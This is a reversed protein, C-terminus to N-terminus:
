TGNKKSFAFKKEEGKILRRINEHHTIILLVSITVSFIIYQLSRDPFVFATFFIFSIGSIISGLSVYRFLFFVPIFVGISALTPFPLLGFGIGMLTAVGKGGRFGVYVPFIHGFVAAFGLYIQLNLFLRTDPSFIHFIYVLNVAAWGKFVDFLLVPIGAFTGLTRFTNTAGANGSGHERIDTKYFLRGVWVSTPIAGLLYAGAILLISYITQKDM